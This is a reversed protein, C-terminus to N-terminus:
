RVQTVNVSVSLTTDGGGLAIGRMPSVDDYDRGHGISIHDTSAFCANTPDFDVWGLDSGAYVSIWAHSEDAGILQKQGDPAITRLYGSVYRAPLNLSRLCALQVHAFDQCVGAKGRFAEETTTHVSTATSDYRFDAHIKRTLDMAAELIPRQATFCDAAYDRFATDCRVRPSNYRYEGVDFWNPDEHGILQSRISEWEPSALSGRERFDTVTVESFVAVTLSDHLTEVSFSHVRNGFYDTHEIIRRPPPEITLRVDHCQTSKTDRPAMRLQNHCLAVADGYQYRTRHQIRYRATKHTTM